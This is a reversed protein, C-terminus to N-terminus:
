CFMKCKDLKIKNFRFTEWEGAHKKTRYFVHFYREKRDAPYQGASNEAIITYTVLDMFLGSDKGIIDEIMKDLGYEKIIKMIIIHAGIHLCSSRSESSKEEPIEAEPFYKLYNPNPYMMEPNDSCVKGITTRKPINYKKEPKYIKAYEYHVYIANKRKQKYIKGRIKPIEVSYDFYM